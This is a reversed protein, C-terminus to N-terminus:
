CFMPSADCPNTFQMNKVRRVGDTLLCIAAPQLRQQEEAHMQQLLMELVLKGIKCDYVALMEIDAVNGDDM